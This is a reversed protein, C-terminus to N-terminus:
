DEETARYIRWQQASEDVLRYRSSAAFPDREWAGDAATVVIIRCDYKTALQQVDAPSGDGAFVRIFQANIEETRQSGLTTYVLALERGAFCSRRDSLLAWSINVPWPTAAQLFLPNNGVRESPASHHRVAAWLQPSAAFLHAAPGTQGSVYSRMVDIGGPLGLIIAIGAMTVAIRARAGIWGSVAAAALVTLAMAAVLVARWGLDDNEALTSTFLWCVALSSLALAAVARVVCSRDDQFKRSSFLRVLAIMGIVYVASLEIPLLVIWFAPPDLVARLSDSFDSELVPYLQLAIPSGKGVTVALQDRLLLTAFCVALVAAAALSAIFFPRRRPGLRGITVIAIVPAAMAFTVGGIWTSSEFGAAVVLALTM